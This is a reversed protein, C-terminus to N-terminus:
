IVDGQLRHSPGWVEKSEEIILELMRVRRLARAHCVRKVPDKYGKLHWAYVMWLDRAQELPAGDTRLSQASALCIM